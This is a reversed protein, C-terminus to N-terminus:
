YIKSIKVIKKNSSDELIERLADVRSISQVDREFFYKEQNSILNNFYISQYPHYIYVKYLMELILIILLVSLSKLIMLRKKLILYIIYISYISIYSIFFHIFFFHRWASYIHLDFSLYIFIIQFFSIFIFFYFKEKAGRWFDSKFVTNENISINILRLFIRKILLYLGFLFLSIM